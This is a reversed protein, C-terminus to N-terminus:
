IIQSGMIGTRGEMGRWGGGRERDRRDKRLEIVASRCHGGVAVVEKGKWIVRWGIVEHTEEVAIMFLFRM